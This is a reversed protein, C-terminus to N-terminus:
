KKFTFCSLVSKQSSIPLRFFLVQKWDYKLSPLSLIICYRSNNTTALQMVIMNLTSIFAGDSTQRNQVHMSFAKGSRARQLKLTAVKEIM